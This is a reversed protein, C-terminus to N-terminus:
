RLDEIVKTRVEDSLRDLLMAVARDAIDQALVEDNEENTRKIHEKLGTQGATANAKAAAKAKAQHTVRTQKAVENAARWLLSNYASKVDPMLDTRGAKHAEFFERCKAERETKSETGSFEIRTRLVEALEKAVNPDRPNAGGAAVDVVEAILRDSVAPREYDAPPQKEKTATPEAVVKPAVEEAKSPNLGLSALFQEQEEPTFAM